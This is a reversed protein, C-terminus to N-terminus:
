QKPTLPNQKYKEPVEGKLSRMFVMVNKVEEGNMKYDLQIDAMIKVAEKLDKVSGDHFYPYKETINRLSPVKFMYEDLEENTLDAVGKDIKESKTAEWYPKYVGFRHFQNGGLLPGNHCTNCGTLTFTLLGKKEELTLAQKDGKLYKDFRSPTLLQREFVGIARQM